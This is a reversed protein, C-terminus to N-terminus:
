GGRHRSLRRRREGGYRPLHQAIRPLTSHRRGAHANPPARRQLHQPPLPTYASTPRHPAGNAQPAAPEGASPLAAEAAELPRGSQTALGSEANTATSSSDASATPVHVHDTILGLIEKGADGKYNAEHALEDGANGDRPRLTSDPSTLGKPQGTSTTYFPMKHWPKSCPQGNRCTVCCHFGELGNYSAGGTHCACDTRVCRAYPFPSSDGSEDDSSTTTSTPPLTPSKPQQGPYAVTSGKAAARYTTTTANTVTEGDGVNTPAVMSPSTTTKTTKPPTTSRPSSPDPIGGNLQLKALTLAGNLGGLVLLRDPLATESAGAALQLNLKAMLPEWQATHSGDSVISKLLRDLNGGTARELLATLINVVNCVRVPDNLFAPPSTSAISLFHKIAIDIDRTRFTIPSATSTKGRPVVGIARLLQVSQAESPWSVSTLQQGPPGPSSADLYVLPAKVRALAALVGVNRAPEGKATLLLQGILGGHTHAPLSVQLDQVGAPGGFIGPRGKDQMRPSLVGVCVAQAIRLIGGRTYYKGGTDSTSTIIRVSLVGGDTRTAQTFPTYAWQPDNEDAKFLLWIAGKAVDRLEGDTLANIHAIRRVDASGKPWHPMYGEDPDHIALEVVRSVRVNFRLRPEAM